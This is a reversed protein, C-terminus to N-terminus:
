SFLTKYQENHTLCLLIVTCTMYHVLLLGTVAVGGIVAVVLVTFYQQQAILGSVDSAIKMLRLM